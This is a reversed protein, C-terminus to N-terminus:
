PIFAAKVVQERRSSEEQITEHEVTMNQLWRQWLFSSQMVVM